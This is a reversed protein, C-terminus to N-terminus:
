KSDTLEFVVRLRYSTTVTPWSGFNATLAQLETTTVALFNLTNDWYALTADDYLQLTQTLTCSALVAANSLTMTPLTGLTM